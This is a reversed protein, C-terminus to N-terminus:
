FVASIVTKRPRSFSGNSRQVSGPRIRNFSSDTVSKTFTFKVIGDSYYMGDREEYGGSVEYIKEEATVAETDTFFGTDVTSECSPLTLLALAALVAALAPSLLRKMINSIKTKPHGTKM